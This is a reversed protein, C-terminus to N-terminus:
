VRREQRGRRYSNTLASVLWDPEKGLGSLIATGLSLTPVLILGFFGVVPIMLFVTMLVAGSLLVILFRKQTPLLQGLRWSLATYGALLILLFPLGLLIDVYDEFRTDSGLDILFGFLVMFGLGAVPTLLPRRTLPAALPALRRRLLYGGLLLLAFNVGIFLLVGTLYFGRQGPMFFYPLSIVEEPQAGHGALNAPGGIAIVEGELRAGPAAHIGGGVAITEGDVLGTVVIDGGIAIAESVEGEVTISCGICVAESSQTGKEVIINRFFSVDEAYLSPQLLALFLLVRRQPSFGLM